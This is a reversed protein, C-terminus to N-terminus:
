EVPVFNGKKMKGNIKKPTRSRAIVKLYEPIKTHTLSEDKMPISLTSNDRITEEMNRGFLTTSCNDNKFLVYGSSAELVSSEVERIVGLIKAAYTAAVEINEEKVQEWDYGLTKIIGKLWSTDESFKAAILKVLLEQSIVVSPPVKESKGKSRLKMIGDYNKVKDTVSEFLKKFNLRKSEKPKDKKGGKEPKSSKKAPPTKKGKAPKVEEEDDDDEVKSSKKAPPTKKGKAPPTKKGKAPEVEEEDDDDEDEDEDDEDEVKSVKKGKAPPTKKGKAPKVEEEEDDEDEDEDDDDDDEDVPKKAPTKKGKAPKVEEEENDDDDDDLDDDEDEDEDAELEKSKKKLIEDKKSM